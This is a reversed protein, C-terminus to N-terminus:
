VQQLLFTALAGVLAGVAASLISVIVLEYNKAWFGKKSDKLWVCVTSHNNLFSVYFWKKRSRLIIDVEHLLHYKDQVEKSFNVTTFYNGLVVNCCYDTTFIEIDTVTRDKWNKLLDEPDEFEYELSSIKLKIKEKAHFDRILEYIAKIDDYYVTVPSYRKYIANTEIKKM